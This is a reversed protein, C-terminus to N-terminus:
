AAHPEGGRADAAGVARGPDAMPASADRILHFGRQVVRGRRWGWASVRPAGDLITVLLAAGWAAPFVTQHLVVDHASFFTGFPGVSEDGEKWDDAPHSHVWGVMRESAGRLRIAADAAGWIESSFKFRTASQQAPAPVHATVEVFLEREDPDRLVHGLLVGGCENPRAAVAHEIIAKAVSAPVFLPPDELVVDGIPAAGRFREALSSTHPVWSASLAKTVVHKTSADVPRAREDGLHRAAIRYSFEEGPKLKGDRVLGEAALQAHAEFFANGFHEVRERGGGLDLVVSVGMLFPPGDLRSTRPVITARAVSAGLPLEGVRAAAFKAAEVAPSFDVDLAFAGLRGEDDPGAGSRSLLVVFGHHCVVSM